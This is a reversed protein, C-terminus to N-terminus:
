EQADVLRFGIFQGPRLEMEGQWAQRWGTLPQRQACSGGPWAVAAENAHSRVQRHKPLRLCHRRPRGGM